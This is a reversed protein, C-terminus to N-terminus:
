LQTRQVRWYLLIVNSFFMRKTPLTLTPQLLNSRTKKYHKTSLTIPQTIGTLFYPNRRDRWISSVPAVWKRWISSVPAVWKQHGRSPAHLLLAARGQLRPPPRRWHGRPARLSRGADARARCLTSRLRRRPSRLRRPQRTRTSRSSSPPSLSQRTPGHPLSRL